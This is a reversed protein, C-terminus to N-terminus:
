SMKSPGPMDRSFQDTVPVYRHVSNIRVKNLVQFLLYKCPKTIQHLDTVM